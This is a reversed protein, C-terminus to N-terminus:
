LTLVAWTIIVHNVKLADMVDSTSLIKPFTSIVPDMVFGSVRFVIM